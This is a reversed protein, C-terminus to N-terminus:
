NVGDPIFESKILVEPILFIDSFKNDEKKLLNPMNFVFKAWRINIRKKRQPMDTPIKTINKGGQKADGYQMAHIFDPNFDYGEIDDVSVTYLSGEKLDKTECSKGIKILKVIPLTQDTNSTTSKVYEGNAASPIMIESRGLLSKGILEKNSPKYTFIKVLVENRLPIYEKFSDSYSNNKYFDILQNNCDIQMEALDKKRNEEARKQSELAKDERDKFLKDTEEKSLLTTPKTDGVGTFLKSM